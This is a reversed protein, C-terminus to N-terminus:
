ATPSVRDPQSTLHNRLIRSTSLAGATSLFRAGSVGCAGDIRAGSRALGDLVAVPEKGPPHGIDSARPAFPLCCPEDISGRIAARQRANLCLDDSASVAGEDLVPTRPLYDQKHHWARQVLPGQARRALATNAWVCSPSMSCHLQDPRAHHLDRSEHQPWPTAAWSDGM